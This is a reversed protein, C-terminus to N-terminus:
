YLLTTGEPFEFDFTTPPLAADVDVHIVSADRTVEGAVSEVLRLILGEVRDVFVQVHYDPRDVFREVVRPHDCEIVIAERGAVRDTGSIWCHGTALVNQGKENFKVGKYPSITDAGDISTERLAAVIDAPALSKARQLADAVM